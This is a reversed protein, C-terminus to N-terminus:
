PLNEQENLEFPSFIRNEDLLLSLPIPSEICQLEFLCELFDNEEVISNFPLINKKYM